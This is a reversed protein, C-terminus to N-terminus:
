AADGLDQYQSPRIVSLVGRGRLGAWVGEATAMCVGWLSRLDHPDLVDSRSARKPRLFSLALRLDRWWHARPWLRSVCWCAVLPDVRTRLGSPLPAAAAPEGACIAMGVLDLGCRQALFLGPTPRPNADILQVTGDAGELFDFGITGHWGSARLLADVQREIAEHRLSERAIGAGGRDPFECLNRYVLTGKPEGRWAFSLSCLQRAAVFEQAILPMAPPLGHAALLRERVAPLEAPTAVKAVGVASSSQPVKLVIPFPLDCAEDGLMRWHPVPVGHEGAFRYAAAKDHFRLMAGYGALPLRALGALLRAHKSLALAEEYLPLVVDHPHGRLYEALAGVFAEAGQQLPPCVWREQTYRSYFGLSHPHWDAATVQHGARGLRRIAALSYYTRAGTVLVRM